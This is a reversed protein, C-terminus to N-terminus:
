QALDRFLAIRRRAREARADEHRQERQEADRERRAKAERQLWHDPVVEVPDSARAKNLTYQGAADASGRSRACYRVPDGEIEFTVVWVPRGAHREAFRELITAEDVDDGQRALWNADHRGVWWARFGTSTRHGEARAQRFGVQLPARTVSLVRIRCAASRGRAGVPYHHEVAFPCRKGAVFPVRHQTKRGSAVARVLPPSLIM